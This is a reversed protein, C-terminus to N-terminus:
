RADLVHNPAAVIAVDPNNTMGKKKESSIKQRRLFHRLVNLFFGAAVMLAVTEGWSAFVSCPGPIRFLASWVMQFPNVYGKLVSPSSFHAVPMKDTSSSKSVHANALWSNKKRAGYNLL